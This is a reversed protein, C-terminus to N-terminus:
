INNCMNILYILVIPGGGGVELQIIIGDMGHTKHEKMRKIDTEVEESSSTARKLSFVFISFCKCLRFESLRFTFRFICFPFVFYM